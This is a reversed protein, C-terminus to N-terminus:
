EAYATFLLKIAGPIQGRRLNNSQMRLLFTAHVMRPM